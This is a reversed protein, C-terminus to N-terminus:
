IENSFKIFNGNWFSDQIIVHMFFTNKYERRFNEFNLIRIRRM